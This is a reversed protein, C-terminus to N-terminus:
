PLPIWLQTYLPAVSPVFTPTFINEVKYVSPSYWWYVIPKAISKIRISKFLDDVDSDSSDSSSSSSDDYRKKRKGGEQRHNTHNTHNTDSEHSSLKLANRYANASATIFANEEKKTLKIDKEQITYTTNKGDLKENVVFHHLNNSGQQKLTFIFEPINGVVYKGDVVLAKWFMHAAENANKSEFEKPFSGLVVPNVLELKM